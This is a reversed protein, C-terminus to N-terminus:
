AQLYQRTKLHCDPCLAWGGMTQELATNRWIEDLEEPGADPAVLRVMEAYSTSPVGDEYVKIDSRIPSFGRYIIARVEDLPVAFSKGPGLPRQCIDCVFM